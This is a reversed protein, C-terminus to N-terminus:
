AVEEGSRDIPRTITDREACLAANSHEVAVRPSIDAADRAEAATDEDRWGILEEDAGEITIQRLVVESRQLGDSRETACGAVDLAPGPRPVPRHNRRGAGVLADRQVVEGGTDAEAGRELNGDAFRVGDRECGVASPQRHAACRLRPSGVRGHRDPVEITVM